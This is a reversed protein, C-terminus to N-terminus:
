LSSANPPTSVGPQPHPAAKPSKAPPAKLTADAHAPHDQLHQLFLEQAHSPLKAPLLSKAAQKALPQQQQQQEQRQPMQPEAVVVKFSRPPQPELHRWHQLLNSATFAVSPVRCCIFVTRQSACCHQSMHSRGGARVGDGPGHLDLNAPTCQVHM